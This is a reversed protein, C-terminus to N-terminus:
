QSDRKTVSVTDTIQAPGPISARLADGLKLLGESMGLMLDINSDEGLSAPTVIWRLDRGLYGRDMLHTLFKLRSYRWSQHEDRYGAQELGDAMGEITAALTMRPQHVPALKRFLSFDVRYSRKDPAANPNVRVTTGPFRKAVADALDRVQWTWEDSGINIALFAPGVNRTIAWEVARAMDDVQILPRWPTGDSLIQITREKYARATFDNLVLDLRLRSSFGCATAFRLCTVTFSDDALLKLREEAAVKSKAYATLPGVESQENRPAGDDACGYVSCSSAFVFSKAGSAKAQRALEFTADTNIDFTAKEFQNGIPDNSIGALHVIADAATVAAPPASRMDGFYQRDLLAEPLMDRDLLCPAFYGADYGALHSSRFTRRLHRVVRPGVYGMNGTVVIKKM